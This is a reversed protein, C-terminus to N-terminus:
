QHCYIALNNYTTAKLYDLDTQNKMQASSALLKACELLDLAKDNRGLEM